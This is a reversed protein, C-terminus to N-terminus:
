IYQKKVFVVSDINAIEDLIAVNVNKGEIELKKGVGFPHEEMCIEMQEPTYIIFDKMEKKCEEKLETKTLKSPSIGDFADYIRGEHLIACHNFDKRMVYQSEPFYHKIIKALEYCGGHSFYWLSDVNDIYQSFEDNFLDIVFAILTDIKDIEM